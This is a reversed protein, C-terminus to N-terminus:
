FEPPKAVLDRISKRSWGVSRKGLQVPKPYIDDKIGAYWAARSVPYVALVENLRLFGDGNLDIGISAARRRNARNLQVLDFKSYKLPLLRNPSSPSPEPYSPTAADLMDQHLQETNPSTAETGKDAVVRLFNEVKADASTVIPPASKKAGQAQELIKGPGDAPDCYISIQSM